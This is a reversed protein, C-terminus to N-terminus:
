LLIIRGRGARAATYPNSTHGDSFAQSLQERAVQPM